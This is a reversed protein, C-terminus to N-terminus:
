NLEYNVFNNWEEIADDAAQAHKKAARNQEDIFDQICSKFMDVDNNFNDLEWQSNFQYPKIPKSCSHSPTFMDSLVPMSITLALFSAIFVKQKFKV